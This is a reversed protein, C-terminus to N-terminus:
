ETHQRSLTTFEQGQVSIRAYVRGIAKSRLIWKEATMWFNKNMQSYATAFEDKRQIVSIDLRCDM